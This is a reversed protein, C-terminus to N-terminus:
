NKHYFILWYEAESNEMWGVTNPYKSFFELYIDNFDKERFKESVAITKNDSILFFDIDKRQMEKEIESDFSVRKISFKPFNKKYFDDAIKIQKKEFGLSKNFQHEFM